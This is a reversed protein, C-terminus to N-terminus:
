LISRDTSHQIQVRKQNIGAGLRDVIMWERDYLLGQPGIEWRDTVEFGACSKIPYVVISALQLHQQGELNSSSLGAKSLAVSPEVPPAMREVFYKEIFRM